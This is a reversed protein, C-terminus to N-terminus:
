RMLFRLLRDTLPGYPPFMMRLTSWRAQTFIPRMKSFTEFGERGHYHGMGSEGVGGFPLDDQAVHLLADNVSVGGSMVEDIYRRVVASDQSFPYIALPRGGARIRAIVEDHSDYPLVPLIPGFIERTLLRSDAPPDIVLQPALRHRADDQQAGPLLGVV